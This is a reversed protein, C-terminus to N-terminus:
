EGPLACAHRCASHGGPDATCTVPADSATAFQVVQEEPRQLEPPPTPQAGVLQGAPWAASNAAPLAVAPQRLQRLPSNELPPPPASDCHEGHGAPWYELSDVPRDAHRGQVQGRPEAEVVTPAICGVVAQVRHGADVNECPPELGHKVHAGPM